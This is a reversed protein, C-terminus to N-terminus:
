LHAIKSPQTLYGSPVESFDLGLVMESYVLALAVNSSFNSIHETPEQPICFRIRTGHFWSHTVLFSMPQNEVAVDLLVTLLEAKKKDKTFCRVKSDRM